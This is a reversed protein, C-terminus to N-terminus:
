FGIMEHQDRPTNHVNSVGQLGKMRNEFDLMNEREEKKSYSALREMLICDARCIYDKAMQDLLGNPTVYNPARWSPVPVWAKRQLGEVRFDSAGKNDRRGWFYEYGERYVGEPIDLLVNRSDEQYVGDQFVREEIRDHMPLRDGALARDLVNNESKIRM